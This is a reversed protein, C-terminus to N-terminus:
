TTGNPEEQPGAPTSKPRKPETTSDGRPSAARRLETSPTDNTGYENEVLAQMDAHLDSAPAQCARDVRSSDQDPRNIMRTRSKVCGSSRRRAQPPVDYIHWVNMKM